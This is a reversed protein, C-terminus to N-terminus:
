TFLCFAEVFGLDFAMLCVSENATLLVFDFVIATSFYCFTIGSNKTADTRKIVPDGLVWLSPRKTIM